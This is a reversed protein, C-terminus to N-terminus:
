KTNNTNHELVSYCQATIATIKEKEAKPLKDFEVPVGNKLIGCKIKGLAANYKIRVEYIINYKM